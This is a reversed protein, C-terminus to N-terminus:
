GSYIIVCIFTNAPYLIYTNLATHSATVSCPTFPLVKNSNVTLPTIFQLFLYFNTKM